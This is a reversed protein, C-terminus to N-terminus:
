AKLHKVNKEKKSFINKRVEKNMIFKITRILIVGLVIRGTIKVRIDYLEEEFLPEVNIFSNPIASNIVSIVGCVIGTVSPDDFGYVGSIDIYGPKIINIIDKFYEYCISILKKTIQPKRKNSEKKSKSKKKYPKVKNIKFNFGALRLTTIVGSKKQDKSFTVQTLGFLWKVIGKGYINESIYGNFSYDFPIILLGLLLIILVCLIVIIIHSLISIM